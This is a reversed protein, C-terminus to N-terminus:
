CPAVRRRTGEVLDLGLALVPRRGVELALDERREVQAEQLAPVLRAHHLERSLPQGDLPRAVQDLRREDEIEEAQSVMVHVALAVELGMRLLSDWDQQLQALAEREDRTLLPDGEVVVLAEDVEDGVVDQELAVQQDVELEAPERM